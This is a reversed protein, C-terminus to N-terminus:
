KTRQQLHLPLMFQQNNITLQTIYDDPKDFVVNKLALVLNLDQKDDKLKITQEGLAFLTKNTSAQTLNLKITAQSVPHEFSIRAVIYVSNRTAPFESSRLTDYTGVITLKGKNDQAYDCYTFININM